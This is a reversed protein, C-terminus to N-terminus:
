HPNSSKKYEYRIVMEEYKTINVPIMNRDSKVRIGCDPCFLDLDTISEGCATCTYPEKAWKKQKEEIIAHEKSNYKRNGTFIDLKKQVYNKIFFLNLLYFFITLLSGYILFESISLFLFMASGFMIFISLRLLSELHLEYAIQYQGDKEIIDIDFDYVQRFLSNNTEVSIGYPSVKKIKDGEKEFIKILVNPFKGSFENKDVPFSRNLSYPIPM